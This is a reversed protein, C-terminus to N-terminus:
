HGYNLLAQPIRRTISSPRSIIGVLMFNYEGTSAARGGAAATGMIVDRKEFSRKVINGDGQYPLSCVDYNGPVLIPSPTVRM